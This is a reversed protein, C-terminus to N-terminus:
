ATLESIVRRRLEEVGAGTEVDVGVDAGEPLDAPDARTAVVLERAEPPAFESLAPRALALQEEVPEPGSADVCHLLLRARELQLLFADRRPTGDAALGPLDAILFLHGDADELPGLAPELTSHPYPAVVATAGTLATLV